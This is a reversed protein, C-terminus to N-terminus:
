QPIGTNLSSYGGDVPSLLQAVSNSPNDGSLVPRLWCSPQGFLGAMVFIVRVLATSIVPCLFVGLFPTRDGTNIPTIIGTALTPSASLIDVAGACTLKILDAISSARWRRKRKRNIRSPKTTEDPRASM